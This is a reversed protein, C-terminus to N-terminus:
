LAFAEKLKKEVLQNKLKVYVPVGNKYPPYSEGQILPELYRRCPETIGFGDNAIFNRPLKHEVNAVQSLPATGVHWQYDPSKERQITLM